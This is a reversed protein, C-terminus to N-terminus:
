NSRQKSGVINTISGMCSDVASTLGDAFVAAGKESLPFGDKMYM